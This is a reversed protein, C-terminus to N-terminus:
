FTRLLILCAQFGFEFGGPEFARLADTLNLCLGQYVLLGRQASLMLRREPLKLHLLLRHPTHALLDLCLVAHQLHWLGVSM